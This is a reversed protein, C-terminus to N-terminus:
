RRDGEQCCYQWHAKFVFSTTPLCGTAAITKYWVAERGPFTQKGYNLCVEEPSFLLQSTHCLLRRGFCCTVLKRGAAHRTFSVNSTGSNQLVKLQAKWHHFHFVNSSLRSFIIERNVMEESRESLYVM